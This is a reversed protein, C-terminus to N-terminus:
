IDGSGGHVNVSGICGTCVEGTGGGGRRLDTRATRRRADVQIIFNHWMQQFPHLGDRSFLSNHRVM